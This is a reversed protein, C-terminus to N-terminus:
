AQGDASGKRSRRTWLVLGTGLALLVVAGGAYAGIEAGTVALGPTSSSGGEANAVPTADNGPTDGPPTMPPTGPPQTACQPSSPPYSVTVTAEPNVNFRVQTSDRVWQYPGGEVWTGDDQQVWGPWGTPNGASDVTAGPWLIRGSGVTLGDVVYDEGSPNVFTITLATAETNEVEVDYGLYPVDGDCIPQQTLVSFAAEPAYGDDGEAATAPAALLLPALVGAALAASWRHRPTTGSM